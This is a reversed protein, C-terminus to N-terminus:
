ILPLRKWISDFRRANMENRLSFFESELTKFKEDIKADLAKTREDLKSDLASIKADILKMQNSIEEKVVERIEPLL